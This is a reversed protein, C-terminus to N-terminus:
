MEESQGIGENTIRITHKEGTEKDFYFLETTPFEQSNM